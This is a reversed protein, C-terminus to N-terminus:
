RPARRPGSSAALAADRSPHSEMRTIQGACIECLWFVQSEALARGSRQRLYGRVIVCDGHAEFNLPRVELDGDLDAVQSWWKAVAERGLLVPAGHIAPRAEVDPALAAVCADVDGQSFWDFIQRALALNDERRTETAM